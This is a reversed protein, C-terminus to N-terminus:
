RWVDYAPLVKFLVVLAVVVLTALFMPAFFVRSFIPSDFKLHMYFLVVTVFKGASLVLLTPVLVSELQPIYFIAVEIATIITLALGIVVYIKWNPHSALHEEHAAGPPPGGSGHAGPAGMTIGGHVHAGGPSDQTPEDAM